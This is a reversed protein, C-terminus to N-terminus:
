SRGPSTPSPPRRPGPNRVRAAAAAAEVLLSPQGPAAATYTTSSPKIETRDYRRTYAHARRSGIFVPKGPCARTRRKERRGHYGLRVFLTDRTYRSHAFAHHLFHGFGGQWLIYEISGDSTIDLMDFVPKLLAAVRIETEGSFKVVIAADVFLPGRREHLVM